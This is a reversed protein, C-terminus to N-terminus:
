PARHIDILVNDSDLEAEVATGEPFVSLKSGALSDVPITVSGEPTSMMVEGWYPDAYHLTGAVVRHDPPPLDGRRVNVLINGADVWLRVQEGIKSNHLGVRDARMPSITRPQLGADTRVFLVGSHIQTIVGSIGYFHTADVM